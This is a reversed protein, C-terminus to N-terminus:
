EGAGETEPYAARISYYPTPMPRRVENVYYVVTPASMTLTDRCEVRGALGHAMMNLACMKCATPDSDQAVYYYGLGASHDTHTREMYHALLLRGSGAAPDNVTGRDQAGNGASAQLISACMDSVSQPTFFQGTKAAKGSTLYLQEYLTGFADLWHGRDMSDAVDVLWRLALPALDKDAFLHDRFYEVYEQTGSRFADISFVDLLYDLFDSLAMEYPRKNNDARRTLVDAYEKVNMKM